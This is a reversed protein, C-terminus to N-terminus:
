KFFKWVLLVQLSLVDDKTVYANMWKAEAAIGLNKSIPQTYTLAINSGLSTTKSKVAGNYNLHTTLVYSGLGAFIAVRKVIPMSWVILLPVANVSVNGNSNGNKVHYSYLNTYGSEIGLNLRFGPQWMIRITGAVSSKTIKNELNVPADPIPSVYQALGGGVYVAFSQKKKIRSETKVNSQAFSENISMVALFAVALFVSKNM